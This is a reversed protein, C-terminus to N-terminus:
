PRNKELIIKLAVNEDRDKDICFVELEKKAIIRLYNSKEV